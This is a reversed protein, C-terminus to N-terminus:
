PAPNSRALHVAEIRAMVAEPIEYSWADINESLQATSTAGIITSAVFWRRYCFALALTALSVGADDAIQRYALVADPVGPKDYRASFGPFCALRSGEPRGDLYKGTLHGFALVSYPLLGVQERHCLEAMGYEFVRNLLSYANQVSVVRPLDHERACRIFEAVGWPQENSLGVYRIKGQAVLEALVALQDDIAVCEREEEPQYQWRGWLPQNREPWHIQYLDIYDTQLRSLSGEVAARINTADLAPPGGRIWGFSRGPGSVKSALVVKDRAKRRLWSGVIRESAGYTEARPPVAYLEATDIFNIGREFAMDLQAHAQAETNQQGFTMTGLCLPSVKLRSSGLLRLDM